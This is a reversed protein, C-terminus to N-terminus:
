SADNLACTSFFFGQAGDDDRQAHLSRRLACEVGERLIYGCPPPGVAQELERWAVVAFQTELQAFASAEDSFQRVALHELDAADGRPRRGLPEREGPALGREGRTLDRIDLDAELRDAIFSADRDLMAAPVGNGLVVGGAVAKWKACRLHAQALM